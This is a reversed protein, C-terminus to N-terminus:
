SPTGASGAPNKGRRSMPIVALDISVAFLQSCLVPHNGPVTYAILAGGETMATDLNTNLNVAEVPSQQQWQISSM